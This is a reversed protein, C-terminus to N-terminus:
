EEEEESEEDEEEEEKNLDRNDTETCEAGLAVDEHLSGVNEDVDENRDVLTDLLTFRTLLVTVRLKPPWECPVSAESGYAPDSSQPM